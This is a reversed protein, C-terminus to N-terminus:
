MRWVTWGAASLEEREFAGKVDLFPCGAPLLRKWFPVGQEIFREHAVAAIIGDV